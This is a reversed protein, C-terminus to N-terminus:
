KTLQVGMDYINSGVLMRISLFNTGNLTMPKVFLAAKPRYSYTYSYTRCTATTGDDFIIVRDWDCGEFGSKKEKKDKDMWGDIAKVKLVYYGELDSLKDITDAYAATCFLLGALFTSFSKSRTPANKLM